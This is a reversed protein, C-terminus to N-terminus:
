PLACKSNIFRNSVGLQYEMEKLIEKRKEKMKAIKDDVNKLQISLRSLERGIKQCKRVTVSPLKNM